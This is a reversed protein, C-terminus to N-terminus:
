TTRVKSNGERFPFMRSKTWCTYLCPIAAVIFIFFHAARRLAYFPRLVSSLCVTTVIQHNLGVQLQVVGAAAHWCTKNPRVVTCYQSRYTGYSNPATPSMCSPKSKITQDLSDVIPLILIECESVELNELFPARFKRLKGSSVCIQPDVLEAFERLIRPLESVVPSALRWPRPFPLM